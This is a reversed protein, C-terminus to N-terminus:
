VGAGNNSVAPKAPTRHRIEIVTKLAKHAAGIPPLTQAVPQQLLADIEGIVANTAARDALYLDFLWDRAKQLSLTYLQTNGSLMAFQAQEFQLQVSRRVLNEQEPALTAPLPADRHQIRVYAGLKHLAERLGSFFNDLWSATAPKEAAIPSGAFIDDGPVILPLADAQKQLAAIRVFLGQRDVNQATRVAALEEALQKRVDFLANDNITALITDVSQLLEAVGGLDRMLLVRQSALQLLYDAEALQWDSRDTDNLQQLLLKQEALADSHQQDQRQMQAALTDIATQLQERTQQQAQEGDQLQTALNNQLSDLATQLQLLRAQQQQNQWYVFGSAGLAAVALLAVFVAGSRGATRAQGTSQQAAAKLAAAQAAAAERSDLANDPTDSM